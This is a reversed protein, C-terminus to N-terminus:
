TRAGKLHLGCEKHEPNEWWWRGARIDEGEKVARTCPACGISKFGQRYLPHTPLSHEEMYLALEENSWDFLPNIKFLEYQEDYELVPLNSRTVAQARRLGTIWASKGALATDLQNVKRVQCCRHRNELSERVGWEGLDAELRATEDKNPYYSRITIHFFREVEHHFEATEPFLRLTDLTFVELADYGCSLVLHLAAVDEIQYSFSLAAPGRTKDLINHLYQKM